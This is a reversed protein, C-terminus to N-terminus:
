YSQNNQQELVQQYDELQSDIVDDTTYIRDLDSDRNIASSSKCSNFLLCLYSIILYKFIIKM